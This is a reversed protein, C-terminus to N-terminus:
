REHHSEANFNSHIADGRRRMASFHLRELNVTSWGLWVGSWLESWGSAGACAM